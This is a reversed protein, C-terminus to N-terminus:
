CPTDAPGILAPFPIEPRRAGPWRGTRIRSLWARLAARAQFGDFGRWAAMHTEQPM